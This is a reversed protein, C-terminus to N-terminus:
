DNNKEVYIKIATEIEPDGDVYREFWAGYNSLFKEQFIITDETQALDMNCINQNSIIEFLCLPYRSVFPYEYRNKQINLNYCYVYILLNSIEIAIINYNTGIKLSYEYELPKVVKSFLFQDEKSLADSLRVYKCTAQIM